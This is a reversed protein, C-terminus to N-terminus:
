HKHLFKTNFALSGPSTWGAGQSLVEFGPVLWVIFHVHSWSVWPGVQSSPFSQPGPCFISFRAPCPAEDLGRLFQRWPGVHLLSFVRSPEPLLVLRLLGRTPGFHAWASRGLGSWPGTPGGKVKDDNLSNIAGLGPAVCWNKRWGGGLLLSSLSVM